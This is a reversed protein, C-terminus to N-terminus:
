IVKTYAIDQVMYGIRPLLKDLATNPKAHWHMMSAGREKCITETQAILLLGAKGNRYEPDVFLVDNQALGMQKYHLHASIINISYGILKDGVYMFLNCMVGADEIAYYHEVDPDLFQVDKNTALEEYHKQILDKHLEFKDRLSGELITIEDMSDIKPALALAEDETQAFNQMSAM